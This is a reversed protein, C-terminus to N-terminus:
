GFGRTGSIDYIEMSMSQPPPGGPRPSSALAALHGDFSDQDAWREFLVVRTPDVPDAGVVYELCGPESRTARMSDLRQSLFEERDQANVVFAGAVILM